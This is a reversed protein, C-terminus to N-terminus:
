ENSLKYGVGYMTRIYNDAGKEQLKKRLNKLHTYIFDFSDAADVADGCLHEAIAEKTLVRGPNSLFYLLLDYEKKTLTLQEGRVHVEALEPWVLLDRFVLQQQGQFQRRRIIARVRANLESLHFPKILYDDAGLDLGAVKDDLADRATIILVGAPSGQSKLARLLDLGNGDPLTLDLLVCDYQYLMVKEEAQAFDAAEEVVYGAQRLSSFLARRLAPEDEVLLLKM